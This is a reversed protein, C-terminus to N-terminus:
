TFHYIGGLRQTVRAITQPILGGKFFLKNGTWCTASITALRAAANDEKKRKKEKKKVLFLNAFHFFFFKWEAIIDEGPRQVPFM